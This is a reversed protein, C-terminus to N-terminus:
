VRYYKVLDLIRVCRNLKREAIRLLRLHDEAQNFRERFLDTDGTKKCLQKLKNYKLCHCCYEAELATVRKGYYDELDPRIKEILKFIRSINM